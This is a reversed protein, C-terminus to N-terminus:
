TNSARAGAPSARTRPSPRPRPAAAATKAADVQQLSQSLMEQMMQRYYAFRAVRRLSLAGALIGLLVIGASVPLPLVWGLAPPVYAALFLM